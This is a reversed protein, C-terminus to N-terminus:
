GGAGVYASPDGDPVRVLIRVKGRFLRVWVNGGALTLLTVTPKAPPAQQRAIIPQIPRANAIQLLKHVPKVAGTNAARIAIRSTARHMAASAALPIKAPGAVDPAPSGINALRPLIVDGAKNAENMLAEAREALARDTKAQGNATSLSASLNVPGPTAAPAKSIAASITAAPRSANPEAAPPQVPVPAVAITVPAATPAAASGRGDDPMPALSALTEATAIAGLEARTRESSSAPPPQSSGAARVQDALTSAFSQIVTPQAGGESPDAPAPSASAVMLGVAESAEAARTKGAEGTSKAFDPEPLGRLAAGGFSTLSLPVNDPLRSILSIAYGLGTFVAIIALLVAVLRNTSKM